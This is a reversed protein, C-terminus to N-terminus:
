LNNLKASDLNQENFVKALAKITVPKTIFGNMGAQYAEKMHEHTAHASLGIIKAPSRGNQTEYERIKKTAEYGNCNPMEIDMLVVDLRNQERKFLQQAEIGDKAFTVSAGNKELIGKIVLQNVGNDEAVLFRLGKINLTNNVPKRQENIGHYVSRVAEVFQTITVPKEIIQNLPLNNKYRVSEGVKCIIVANSGHLAGKIPDTNETDQLMSEDIMVLHDKKATNHKLVKIIENPKNLLAIKKFISQLFRYYRSVFIDDKTAIYLTKDAFSDAPNQIAM